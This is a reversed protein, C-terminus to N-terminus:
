VLKESILYEALMRGGEGDDTVLVGATRPPRRDAAIVIARPAREGRVDADLDAASMTVLPKKKAAMIGKFAPFRADPLADTISVVAPLPAHITARGSETTRVGHVGDDHLAVEALSTAQAYGLHEALMAAMVGGGGDTSTNGALVLDPTLTRIAAAIVEATLTLDAGLLTDDTIHVADDAGMALAKRLATEASAPGMCLATVRTDPHSAQLTLALEVARETVEDAVRDSAARDVLGTELSIHRDGYTDPVEKLLVVIHM